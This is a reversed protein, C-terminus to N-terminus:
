MFPRALIPCYLPAADRSACRLRASGFAGITREHSSRPPIASRNIAATKFVAPHHAGPTRIGRGGGACFPAEFVALRRHHARPLSHGSCITRSGIHRQRHSHTAELLETRRQLNLWFDSSNGFMRALILATPATVSRRNNCLENVHKRQVGMAEALAGQPLGMSGMFEETLIGGVSAPKRKTTLM